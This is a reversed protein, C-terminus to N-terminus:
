PFEKFTLYSRCHGFFILAVIPVSFSFSELLEKAHTRLEANGGIVLAMPKDDLLRMESLIRELRNRGDFPIDAWVTSGDPNTVTMAILFAEAAAYRVAAHGSSCARALRERVEGPMTEPMAWRSLNKIALLQASALNLKESADWVLCGFEYGDRLLPPLMNSVSDMNATEPAVRMANEAVVAVALASDVDAAEGTLLACCAFQVAQNWKLDSIQGTRDAVNTGDHSLQWVTFADAEDQWRIREYDQLAKQMQNMSHRHVTSASPISKRNHMAINALEMRVDSDIRSDVAAVCLATTLDSEGSRVALLALRGRAQANPTTMATLWAAQAQKGLLSFAECMTPNPATAQESLLHNILAAIGLNGAFKLKQFAQLRENKSQSRLQTVAAALKKTDTFNANALDLIKQASSRQADTIPIIPNLLQLFAQSGISQVMQLSSVDTIGAKGIEDMWHRVEDWRQIRSMLMVARALEVHNKPPNARLSLVVANRETVDLAQKDIKGRAPKAEETAAVETDLGSELGFPDQSQAAACFLSLLISLM